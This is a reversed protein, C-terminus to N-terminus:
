AVTRNMESSRAVRALGQGKGTFDRNRPISTDDQCPHRAEGRRILNRLDGLLGEHSRPLALISVLPQRHQRPGKARQDLSLLASLCLAEQSVRERLDSVHRM